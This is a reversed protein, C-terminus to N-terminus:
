AVDERATKITALVANRFTRDRYLTGQYVVIGRAIDTLVSLYDADSAGQEGLLSNRCFTLACIQIEHGVRRLYDESIAPGYRERLDNSIEALPGFEKHLVVELRNADTKLGYNFAATEAKEVFGFYQQWLPLDSTIRILSTEPPGGQAAQYTSPQDSDNPTATKPPTVGRKVVEVERTDSLDGIRVTVLGRTNLPPNSCVVPISLRGQHLQGKDIQELFPPLSVEIKSGYSDPADTQVVLYNTASRVVSTKRLDVFTPPDHLEIPQVAKRTRKIKEGTEDNKVTTTTTAAAPAAGKKTLKEREADLNTVNDSTYGLSRGFLPESLFRNVEKGFDQSPETATDNEVDAAMALVKLGEQAKLYRVLEDALKREFWDVIAIRSSLFFEADQLRNKDLEDIAVEVILNEALSRLGAQSYISTSPLRVLTQGNYTVFIGRAPARERGELMARLPTVWEDKKNKHGRSWSALAWTAVRVHGISELGKHMEVRMPPLKALMRSKSGPLPQGENVANLENRRGRRNNLHGADDDGALRIYAPSGFLRDSLGNYLGNDRATFYEKVEPMQLQRRITGHEPLIITDAALNEALKEQPKVHPIESVPCSFLSGDPKSLYVYSHLAETTDLWVATYVFTTTGARISGIISFESHNFISASGQGFSGFQLPDLVKDLSGFTLPGNRMASETMGIGCDIISVAHNKRFNKQKLHMLIFVAPDVKGKIISRDAIEQLAEIVTQPNGRFRNQEMWLRIVADHGNTACEIISAFADPNTKVGAKNNAGGGLFSKKHLVQKLLMLAGAKTSCGHLKQYLESAKM